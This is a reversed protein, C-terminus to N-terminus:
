GYRERFLNKSTTYCLVPRLRESFFRLKHQHKHLVRGVETSDADSCYNMRFPVITRDNHERGPAVDGDHFPYKQIIGQIVDFPYGRDALKRVFFAFQQKFCHRTQSTRRLRVSFQSNIVFESRVEQYSFLWIQDFKIITPM